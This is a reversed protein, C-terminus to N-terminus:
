RKEDTEDTLAKVMEGVNIATMCVARKLKEDTIFTEQSINDLFEIGIKIEANIKKLFIYDRHKM